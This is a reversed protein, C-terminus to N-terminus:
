ILWRTGGVAAPRRRPSRTGSAEDDIEAYAFLQKTEPHLAISYNHVGHTLLNKSNKGSQITGAVINRKLVANLQMVFCKRIMFKQTLLSPDTGHRALCGTEETQRHPSWSRDRLSPSSRPCELRECIPTCRDRFRYRSNTNGIELIPGPVSEAEAALLKM